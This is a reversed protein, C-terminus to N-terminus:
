VGISTVEELATGVGLLSVAAIWAGFSGAAGVVSIAVGQVVMGAVILPKRGTRDSAWGTAVQLVGWVMPYAAALVGIRYVDLERSAFFLPFIGWALGDNLNKM